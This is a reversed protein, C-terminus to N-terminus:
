FFIIERRDEQDRTEDADDADRQTKCVELIQQCVRQFFGTALRDRRASRYIM